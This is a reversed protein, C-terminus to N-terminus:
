PPCKDERDGSRYLRCRFDDLSRLRQVERPSRKESPNSDDHHHRGGQGKRELTDAYGRRFGRGSIGAV